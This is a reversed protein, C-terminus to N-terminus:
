VKQQSKQQSMEQGNETGNAKDHMTRWDGGVGGVTAVYAKVTKSGAEESALFRHHGDAIIMKNNNPENVLIIPKVSGDKVQSIFDKVHNMDHSAQWNRRNSVDVEDLLIDEPGSWLAAKVWGLFKKGYDESLEKYVTEAIGANPEEGRQHIKKMDDDHKELTNQVKNIKNNLTKSKNKVIINTM